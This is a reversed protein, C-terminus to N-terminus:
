SVREARRSTGQRCYRTPFLFEAVVDAPASYHSGFLSVPPGSTGSPAGFSFAPAKLPETKEAPNFSFSTVTSPV